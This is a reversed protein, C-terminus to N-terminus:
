RAHGTATSELHLAHQCAPGSVMYSNSIHVYAAACELLYYFAQSANGIAAYHRALPVLVSEIVAECKCSREGGDKEETRSPQATTWEGEPPFQESARTLPLIGPFSSLLSRILMVQSSGARGVPLLLLGAEQQRMGAGVGCGAEEEWLQLGLWCGFPLAGDTEEPAGQNGCDDSGQRRM